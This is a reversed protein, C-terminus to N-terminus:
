SFAEYVEKHRRSVEEWSHGGVFPPISAPLRAAVVIAQALLRKDLFDATMAYPKIVNFHWSDSIVLPTGAAAAALISSSQGGKDPLAAFVGVHARQFNEVVEEMPLFEKDMILSTGTKDLIEHYAAEEADVDAHPSRACMFHVECGPIIAAAQCVERLRKFALPFGHSAIRLKDGPKISKTPLDPIPQPIYVFRGSAAETLCAPSSNWTPAFVEGTLPQNVIIRDFQEFWDQAEVPHTPGADYLQRRMHHFTWVKKPILPLFPMWQAYPAGEAFNLHLIDFEYENLLYQPPMFLSVKEIEISGLHEKLGEDYMRTGCPGFDETVGVMLVKLSM